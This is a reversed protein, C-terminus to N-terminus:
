DLKRMESEVAKTRLIRACGGCIPGEDKPRKVEVELWEANEIGEKFTIKRDCEVCVEPKIWFKWIDYPVEKHCSNCQVVDFKDEKDYEIQEFKVLGDPFTIFSQSSRPISGQFDRGKCFPCQQERIAEDKAEETIKPDM